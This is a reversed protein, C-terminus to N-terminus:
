FKKWIIRCIEQLYVIIDRKKQPPMERLDMVQRKYVDLHTYSVSMINDVGGGVIRLLELMEKVSEQFLASKM